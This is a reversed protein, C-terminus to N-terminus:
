MKKRSGAGGRVGAVGKGVSTAVLARTRRVSDTGPDDNEYESWKPTEAVNCILYGSWPRSRGVDLLSSRM